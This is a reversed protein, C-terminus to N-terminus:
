HTGDKCSRSCCCRLKGELGDDGDKPTRGLACSIGDKTLISCNHHYHATFYPITQEYHHRAKCNPRIHHLFISLANLTLYHGHSEIARSVKKKVFLSLFQSFLSFLQFLQFAWSTPTPFTDVNM